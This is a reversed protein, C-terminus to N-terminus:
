ELGDFEWGGLCKYACGISTMWLALVPVAVPSLVLGIVGLVWVFAAFGYQTQTTGGESDPSYTHTSHHHTSTHHHRVMILYLTSTSSISGVRLMCFLVSSWCGRVTQRQPMQTLVCMTVLPVLNQEQAEVRHHSSVQVLQGVFFAGVPTARARPLAFCGTSLTCLM